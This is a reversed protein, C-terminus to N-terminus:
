SKAFKRRLRELRAMLFPRSSKKKTVSLNYPRNRRMKKTVEKWRNEGLKAFVRAPSRM